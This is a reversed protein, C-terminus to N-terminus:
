EQCLGNNVAPMFGIDKPEPFVGRLAATLRPIDQSRVMFAPLVQRSPPPHKNVAAYLRKMLRVESINSEKPHEVHKVPIILGRNLDARACVLFTNGLVRIELLTNSGM